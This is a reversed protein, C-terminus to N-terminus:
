GDIDQFYVAAPTSEIESSSQLYFRGILVGFNIVSAFAFGVCSLFIGLIPPSVILFMAEIISAASFVLAVVFSLFGGRQRGRYDALSDARAEQAKTVMVLKSELLDREEEAQLDLGAATTENKKRLGADRIRALLRLRRTELEAGLSRIPESAEIISRTTEVFILGTFSVILSMITVVM